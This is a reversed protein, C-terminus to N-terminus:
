VAVSGMRSALQFEPAARILSVLAARKQEVDTWDGGCSDSLWESVDGKDALGPLRVIRISAASWYLLNGAVQMAHSQGPEDNDPLIACRRGRLHKGLSPHWKGAGGSNCTAVFGLAVLAEVDKEGEPILVPQKADKLLEPLLYLLPEVGELNWVAKGDPGPRCQRFDKPHYRVVRYAVAGKEDRYDYNAVVKRQQQQDVRRRGYDDKPPGWCHWPLGVANVISKLSCGKALCKPILWGKRSIILTM